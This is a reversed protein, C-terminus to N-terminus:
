IIIIIGVVGCYLENPEDYLDYLLWVKKCDMIEILIETIIKDIHFIGM